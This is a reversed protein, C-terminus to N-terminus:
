TVLHLILANPVGIVSNQVDKQFVGGSFLQWVGRVGHKDLFPLASGWVRALRGGYQPPIYM